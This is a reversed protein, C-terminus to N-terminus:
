GDAAMGKDLRFGIASRKEFIGSAVREKGSRLRDGGDFYSDATLAWSEALVFLASLQASIASRKKGPL